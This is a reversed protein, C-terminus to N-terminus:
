YPKKVIGAFITVNTDMSTSIFFLFPRDCIFPANPMIPEPSTPGKMWGSTVSAAKTGEENVEIFTNQQLLELFLESTTSMSTLDANKTFINKMGLAQMYENLRYQHEMKFKPFVVQCSGIECSHQMTRFTNMDFTCLWEDFQQDEDPLLVYMTYGSHEYNMKLMRAHFPEGPEKMGTEPNYTFTTNGSTYVSIEDHMMPVLVDGSPAHFTDDHTHAKKFPTAWKGKFCIANALVM